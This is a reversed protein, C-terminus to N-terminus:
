VHPVRDACVPSPASSGLQQARAVLDLAPDAAAILEGERVPV